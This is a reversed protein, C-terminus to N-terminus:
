HVKVWLANFRPTHLIWKNQSSNSRIQTSESGVMIINISDDQSQLPKYLENTESDPCFGRLRLIPPTKYSCPCGINPQYCSWEGWSAVVDYGTVHQICTDGEDDNDSKVDPRWPKTYNELLEGSYFDRWGEFGKLRHDFRGLYLNKDGKTASM